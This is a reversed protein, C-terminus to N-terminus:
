EYERRGVRKYRPEFSVKAQRILPTQENPALLLDHVAWTLSDIRDPSDAGPIWEVQESELMPFVGNHHVRHQEYLSVIPEARTVKGRSASVGTYPVDPDITRITYEVLAGGNNVEAVIRDAQWRHYADVVAQAWEGPSGKLSCDELIYAHKNRGIGAVIIGTHNSNESSTVAPDVGVVIRILEPLPYDAGVRNEEILDSTWLAGKQDELLEGLIEQQGLRSGEYMSVIDSFFDEALNARNDYTTGRTMVVNKRAILDRLHKIPKPTTAVALQPNDGLRLGLLLQTIAEPRRFSALEDCLAWHCQKGRLREPEDASMLLAKSGNQWTLRNYTPSYHPREFEMTQSLIGSPGEVLVDRIDSATPAVMIGISGPRSIAQRHGWQTVALSKGAGRGGMFIWFRWNGPPALQSDRARVEWMNQVLFAEEPTLMSIFDLKDEESLARYSRWDFAQPEFDPM